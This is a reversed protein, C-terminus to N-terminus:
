ADKDSHMVCITVLINIITKKRKIKKQTDVSYQWKTDDGSMANM